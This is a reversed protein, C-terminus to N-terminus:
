NKGGHYQFYIDTFEDFHNQYFDSIIQETDKFDKLGPFIDAPLPPINVRNHLHNVAGAYLARNFREEGTDAEKLYKILDSKFINLSKVWKDAEYLELIKELARGEPFGSDFLFLNRGVGENEAAAIIEKHEVGRSIYINQVLMKFGFSRLIEKLVYRSKNQGTSFKFVALTVGKNEKEEQLYFRTLGQGLPNMDYRLIKNKDKIFVLNKKRRERSLATRLANDTNGTFVIFPKIGKVSPLVLDPLIQKWSHYIIAVTYVANLLGVPYKKHFIDKEEM